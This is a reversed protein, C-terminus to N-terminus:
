MGEFLKIIEELSEFPERVSKEEYKYAIDTPPADKYRQEDESDQQDLYIGSIVVVSLLLAGALM